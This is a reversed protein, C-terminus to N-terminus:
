PSNGEIITATVEPADDAVTVELAGNPPLEMAAAITTGGKEVALLHHGPAITKAEDFREGDIWATPARSTKKTSSSLKSVPRPGSGKTRKREFHKGGDPSALVLMGNVLIPDVLIVDESPPADLMSVIFTRWEPPVLRPFRDHAVHMRGWLVAVRHPGADKKTADRMAHVCHVERMLHNWREELSAFRARLAPAMDCGSVPRNAARAESLLDGITAVSGYKWATYTDRQVGSLVAALDERSGSKAYRDLADDDGKQMSADVDAWRGDAHLQELMIRTWPITARPGVLRRFADIQGPSDHASGFSVVVNQDVGIAILRALSADIAEFGAATGRTRVAAVVSGSAAIDSLSADSEGTPRKGTSALIHRADESSKPVAPWADADPTPRPPPQKCDNCAAIMATAALLVKRM